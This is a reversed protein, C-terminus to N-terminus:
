EKKMGCCRGVFVSKGWSGIRMWWARAANMVDVVVIGDVCEERELVLRADAEGDEM